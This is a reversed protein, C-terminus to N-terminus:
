GGNCITWIAYTPPCGSSTFSFFRTTTWCIIVADRRRQWNRWNRACAVTINSSGTARKSNSISWHAQIFLERAAAPDIPRYRVPRQVIVPMGFLSVKELAMVARAKRRWRPDSYSRKVLHDALPEIWQPSIRAVTRAFRRSTEVLEAAM